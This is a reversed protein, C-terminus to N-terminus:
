LFGMQRLLNHKTFKGFTFNTPTNSFRQSDLSQFDYQPNLFGFCQEANPPKCSVSASSRVSGTAGSSTSGM